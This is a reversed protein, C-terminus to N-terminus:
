SGSSGRYRSILVGMVLALYTTGILSVAVSFMQAQPTAPVIDGFGVTTLCVFAFYNLRMFNIKWVSSFVDEAGPALSIAAGGSSGASIFSGPIVTEVASFLLGATLGVLLYGALAGMLVRESVEPEQALGRVLRLSSWGIFAAWLVLMPVGTGRMYVPTLTWVLSSVFAALGLARFLRHPVRGFPVRGFPEGLGRIIVLPLLNYGVMGLWNLGKPLAFTIMVALCVALLQTYCRHRRLVGSPIAPLLTGAESPSITASVKVLVLGAAHSLRCFVLGPWALPECDLRLLGDWGPWNPGLERRRGLVM